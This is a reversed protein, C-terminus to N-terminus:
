LRGEAPRIVFQARRNESWCQETQDTCLPREEGYSVISIRGAQIGKDVLYQMAAQARREGLALNHENTGREDCHGEIIVLMDERAKLWEANTDLISADEARINSKDFDFHIAKLDAVPAFDKPAPREPTPMTAAVKQQEPEEPAETPKTAESTDPPPLTAQASPPPGGPAPAAVSKLRTLALYVPPDSKMIEGRMEDGNVLFRITFLQGGQAHKVLLQSGRVEFVVNTGAAGALRISVPIVEAAGSGDLVMRGIGRTGNQTLDLLVSEERPILNVGPGSWTGTWRGDVDLASAPTVSVVLAWTAAVVALGLPVAFRRM